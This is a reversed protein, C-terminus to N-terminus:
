GQQRRQHGARQGSRHAAAFPAEFSTAGTLDPLVREARTSTAARAPYEQDSCPSPCASHLWRDSALRCIHTSDTNTDGSSAAHTRTAPRSLAIEGQGLASLVQKSHRRLSIAQQREGRQWAQTSCLAITPHHLAVSCCTFCSRPSWRLGLVHQLVGPSTCQFCSGTRTGFGISRPAAEREHTSQAARHQEIINRAWGGLSVPAKAAPPSSATRPRCVRSGAESRPSPPSSRRILHLGPWTGGAYADSPASSYVGVGRAGASASPQREARPRNRAAALRRDGRGFQGMAPARQRRWGRAREPERIAFKYSRGGAPRPRRADQALAPHVVRCCAEPKQAFWFRKVGCDRRFLQGKRMCDIHCSVERRTM